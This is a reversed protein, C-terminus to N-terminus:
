VFPTMPLSPCMSSRILNRRYLELEGPCLFRWLLILVHPLLGLSTTLLLACPFLPTSLQRRVVAYFQLFDIESYVFISIWYLMLMGWIAVHNLWTITNSETIIIVTQILMLTSYTLFTCSHCDLPFGDYLVARDSYVLLTGLLAMVAQLQGRLLFGCLSIFSFAHGRQTHHYIAPCRLLLHRPLSRDLVYLLIPPLTYVGNFNALMFADWYSVGSFRTTLNYLLQVSSLLMSKYFCYQVIYCTREYSYHGHVLLLPKLFKFRAISFDAARAAQLGEKGQIGVGVHAEQLMAVDNGGDGVALTTKRNLKVMRTISAKLAPTVRCCIVSNAAMASQLFAAQCEETLALELTDGTIMLSYGFQTEDFYHRDWNNSSSPSRAFHTRGLPAHSPDFSTFSM